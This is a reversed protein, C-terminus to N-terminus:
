LPNRQHPRTLCSPFLATVASLSPLAFDRIIARGMGTCYYRVIAAHYRSPVISCTSSYLGISPRKAAQVSAVSPQRTVASLAANRHRLRWTSHHLQTTFDTVLVRTARLAESRFRTYSTKDTHGVIRSAKLAHNSDTPGLRDTM